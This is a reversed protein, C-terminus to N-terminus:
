KGSHLRAQPLAGRKGALEARAASTAGLIRLGKRCGATAAGLGTAALALAAFFAPGSVVALAAALVLGGIVSAVGLVISGVLLGWGASRRSAILAHLEDPDVELDHGCECRSATTLNTLGCMLCRKVGPAEAVVLTAAPYGYGCRSCATASAATMLKCEPCVKRAV